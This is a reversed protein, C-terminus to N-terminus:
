PCGIRPVHDHRNKCGLSLLRLMCRSVQQNTPPFPAKRPVRQHIFGRYIPSSHAVYRKWYRNPLLLGPQEFSTPPMVTLHTPLHYPDPLEQGSVKLETEKFPGPLGVGSVEVQWMYPWFIFILSGKVNNGTLM